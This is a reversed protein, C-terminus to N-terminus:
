FGSKTELMAPAEDTCCGCVNEWLLNESEFFFSVKEFIDVAKTTKELRSCFPAERQFWKFPCVKCIGNVPFM